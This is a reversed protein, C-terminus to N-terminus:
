CQEKYHGIDVINAHVTFTQVGIYADGIELQLHYIGISIPHRVGSTSWLLRAGQVNFYNDSCVVIEIAEFNLSLFSYTGIWM